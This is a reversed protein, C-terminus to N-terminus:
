SVQHAALASRAAKEEKEARKQLKALDAESVKPLDAGVNFEAYPTQITDRASLVESAHLSVKNMSEMMVPGGAGCDCGDQYIVFWPSELQAHEDDSRFGLAAGAFM